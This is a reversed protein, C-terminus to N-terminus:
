LKELQEETLHTGISASRFKRYSHAVSNKTPVLDGRIVSVAPQDSTVKVM